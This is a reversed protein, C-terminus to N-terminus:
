LLEFSHELYHRIKEKSNFMMIDIISLSPIFPDGFQPYEINGTKIFKLEIGNTRFIGKDYLEIGGIPNIYENAALAKCIEIVKEESKLNHDINISSSIIFPTKISLFDKLLTLSNFIFRFLNTEEFLISREIVPYAAEFFPAKQYAETIRNLMKKRDNLWSEALNRDRIDAYDSEKKLPFTIYTDKGNLLIRNRNIWGKKSFQINDYIVFEDALNMLQFYGIYPFLYPQMIALKM